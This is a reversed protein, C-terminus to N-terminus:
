PVQSSAASHAGNWEHLEREIIDRADGVDGPSAILVTVVRADFPM